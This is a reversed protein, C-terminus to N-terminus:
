YSIFGPRQPRRSTRGRKTVYQETLNQHVSRSPPPRGRPTPKRWNGKRSHPLLRLSTDINSQQKSKSESKVPKTVKQPHLARRSRSASPKRPQKKSLNSLEPQQRSDRESIASRVSNLVSRAQPTGNWASPSLTKQIGNTEEATTSQATAMKIREREIWPQLVKKHRELNRTAFNVREALVNRNVEARELDLGAAVRLEETATNLKKAETEVDKELDEYRLLHYHQFEVWNEHRTQEKPDFRPCVDKPLNHRRRRECVEETFQTFRQMYYRRIKEQYSRFARWDEWQNKLPGTGYGPKADFYALIERYQPPYLQLTFPYYLPHPSFSSPHCSADCPHCPPCGEETLLKHAQEELQNYHKKEGEYDPPPTASTSNPKSPSLSQPSRRAAPISLLSELRAQLSAADVAPADLASADQM